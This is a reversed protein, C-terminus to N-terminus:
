GAQGDKGANRRRKLDDAFQLVKQAGEVAAGLEDPEQVPEVPLAEGIEEDIQALLDSHEEIARKRISEGTEIGKMFSAQMKELFGSVERMVRLSREEGRDEAKRLHEMLVLPDLTSQLAPSAANSPDAVKRSRKVLAEVQERLVANDASLQKLQELLNEISIKPSDTM